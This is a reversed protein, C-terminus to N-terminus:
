ADCMLFSAQFKEENREGDRRSEAVETEKVRDHRNEEVKTRPNGLWWRGGEGGCM